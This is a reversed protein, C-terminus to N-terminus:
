RAFLPENAVGVASILEHYFLDSFRPEHSLRVRAKRLAEAPDDGKVLASHFEESLIQMAQVELDHTSQIVCRARKGGLFCAGSLDAAMPDGRRKPGIGAGCITLVVLPPVDCSELEAAGVFTSESGTAPALAFGVSRELSEDRRGHTFLQVVRAASVSRKLSEFSADRGLLFRRSAQPYAAGIKELESATAALPVGEPAGVFLLANTEAAAPRPPDKEARAVLALGITPSPLYSVAKALGLCEGTPLPLAEFPVDGLLDTGVITLRRCSKISPWVDDKTLLMSSLASSEEARKARKWDPDGSAIPSELRSRLEDRAADVYDKSRLEFHELTDRKIVFLHTRDVCPFYVLLAHEDPHALLKARVSALDAHPADLRRALSSMGEADFLRGLAREIGTKGPAIRMDFRMLESILARRNNELLRGYGGERPPAANWAELRRAFEAALDDRMAAIEKEGAQRDQREYVLRASTALWTLYPRRQTRQEAPGLHQAAKELWARAEDWSSSRLAIEALAIEPFVCESSEIEPVALAARLDEIARATKSDDLRSVKAFALGRISLLNARARPTRAYVDSALAQKVAPDVAGYDEMGVLARINARNASVIASDCNFERKAKKAKDVAELLKPVLAIAKDAWERAVDILGEDLYVQSRLAYIECAARRGWSANPDLEREAAILQELAQEYHTQKYRLDGARLFVHTRYLPVDDARIAALVWDVAGDFDGAQALEVAKADAAAIREGDKRKKEAAAAASEKSDDKSQRAVGDPTSQSPPTAAASLIASCSLAFAAARLGRGVTAVPERALRGRGM